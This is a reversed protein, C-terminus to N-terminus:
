RATSTRQVIKTPTLANLPLVRAASLSGSGRLLIAREGGPELDFFDDDAVFGRADFAVCAAFKKTRVTVCWEGTAAPEAFAELGLDPSRENTRGNPFFFSEAIRQGSAEDFLTAVALDHGSPGFRYAYTTDTFRGLLSDASVETATHPALSLATFGELVPVEGLRYLVLRLRAEIPRASDNVAHLSLGNLGEDTALLAIPQLARKLFHYAAKPRGCADIVGWGAGRWLDRLMWVIAGRCESGARRWEAMARAMAEGSAVRGLQLYRAVDVARLTVPDVGFLERVYHDRVDDFDWSVGGDRPVRRKWRPHNPPLEGDLLEDITEDCPINAFGLCEPTFRVRARRADEIGRRYAGVGYYHSIGTDVRFPLAGGTPTSPVYVVSPISARALSPAITDFFPNSWTDRPLGLMAAQQEVESNGCLVALSPSLQLRDTLQSVEATVSRAFSEDAVPYDMNAFM